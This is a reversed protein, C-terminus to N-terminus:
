EKPNIFMDHYEDFDLGLEKAKKHLLREMVKQNEEIDSGFYKDGKPSMLFQYYKILQNVKEKEIM